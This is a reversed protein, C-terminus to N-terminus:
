EEGGNERLRKGNENSSKKTGRENQGAQSYIRRSKLLVANIPPIRFIEREYYENSLLAELSKNQSRALKKAKMIMDRGPGDLPLLNETPHTFFQCIGHNIVSMRDFMRPFVSKDNSEPFNVREAAGVTPSIKVPDTPSFEVNNAIDTLSHIGSQISIENGEASVRFAINLNSPDNLKEAGEALKGNTLGPHHNIEQDDQSVGGSRDFAIM